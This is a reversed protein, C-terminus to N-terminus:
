AQYNKVNKPLESIIKTEMKFKGFKPASSKFCQLLDKKKLAHKVFHITAFSKSICLVGIYIKANKPVDDLKRLAKVEKNKIIKKSVLIRGATGTAAAGFYLWKSGNSKKLIPTIDAQDIKESKPKTVFADENLKIEKFSSSGVTTIQKPNVKNTKSKVKQVILDRVYNRLGDIRSKFIKNHSSVLKGAANSAKKDGKQDADSHNKVQSVFEGLAKKNTSEFGTKFAGLVYKQLSPEAVDGLLKDDITAEFDVNMGGSSFLPVGVSSQCEKTYRSILDICKVKVSAM